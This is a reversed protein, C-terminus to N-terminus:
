YHQQVRVYLIGNVYIFCGARTRAGMVGHRLATCSMFQFYVCFDNMIDSPSPLATCM